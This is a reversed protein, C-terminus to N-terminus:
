APQLWTHLSAWYSPCEELIQCGCGKPQMAPDSGMRGCPLWSGLPPSPEYLPAFLFVVIRTEQAEKPHLLGVKIYFRPDLNGYAVARAPSLMGAAEDALRTVIPAWVKAEHVNYAM